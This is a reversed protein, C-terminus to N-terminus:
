RDREVVRRGLVELSTTDAQLRALSAQMSAALELLRVRSADIGILAPFTAKDRDRICM